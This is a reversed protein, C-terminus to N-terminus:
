NIKRINIFGSEGLNITKIIEGSLKRRKDEPITCVIYNAQDRFTTMIFKKHSYYDMSYSVNCSYVKIDYPNDTAINDRIYEAAKRYSGGWYDTEYKEINKELGGSLENFYAYQLPFLRIFNYITLLLSTVILIYSGVKIYKNMKTNILDILGFSALIVLIPILFIFHRMGNYIVPQILLYLFINLLFATILFKKLPTLNKILSITALFLIFVPITYVIYTFLYEWPRNNNSIFESNYLILNDWKNYSANTVLIEPFNKFFNIGLYPWSITLLFVALVGILFLNKFEDILFIVKKDKPLILFQFIVYLLFIQFGLPRIGLMLWFSFGLIVIKNFNFGINQFKYILYLNLLFLVAFPMDIPNFGLHGSFSPTLFILIPGVLSFLPNKSYEFVLFYAVVFIISAFLMNQFHFWEYYFKPNFINLLTVYFNYTDPEISPLFYNQLPVSNQFYDLQEQGRKYRYEEDSTIPVLKYTLFVYSFYLLLFLVLGFHKKLNSIISAKM